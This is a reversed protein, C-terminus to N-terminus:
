EGDVLVIRSTLTQTVSDSQPSYRANESDLKEFIIHRYTSPIGYEKIEPFWMLLDKKDFYNYYGSLSKILYAIENNAYVLQNKANSGYKTYTDNFSVALTDYVITIRSDISPIETETSSVVCMNQMYSKIKMFDKHRIIVKDLEKTPFTQESMATQKSESCPISRNTEVFGHM